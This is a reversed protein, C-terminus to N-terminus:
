KKKIWSFSLFFILIFKINKLIELDPDWPYNYDVWKEGLIDDLYHM